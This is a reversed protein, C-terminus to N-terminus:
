TLSHPSGPHLHPCLCACVMKVAGAGSGPLGSILLWVKKLRGRRGGGGRARAGVFEHGGISRVM